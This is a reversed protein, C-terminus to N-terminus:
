GAEETDPTMGPVTESEVTTILGRWFAPQNFITHMEDAVVESVLDWLVEGPTLPGPMSYRMGQNIHERLEQRLRDRSAALLVMTADIIGDWEISRVLTEAAEWLDGEVHDERIDISTVNEAVVEWLYDDDVTLTFFPEATSSASSANSAGSSM